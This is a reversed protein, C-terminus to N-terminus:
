TPTGRCASWPSRGHQPSVHLMLMTDARRGLQPTGPGLHLRKMDARSMGERADSGVLLFTTSGNASPAPRDTLGAFADVRAIKKASWQLVTYGTAAVALVALATAAAATLLFIRALRGLLRARRSLATAPRGSGRWEDPHCKRRTWAPEAGAAPRPGARRARRHCATEM